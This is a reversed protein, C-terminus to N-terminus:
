SSRRANEQLWPIAKQVIRPNLSQGLHTVLEALTQSRLVDKWAAEARLMTVNIACPLRYAKAEIAAPGCQRIETCRFAHESGEVAELVDLLTIQDAPRALRFGGKPGPVSELLGARTLAQLHKQLYSESVGHYEALAKGPLTADSPLAALLTACHLSWEVGDSLKMYELYTIDQINDIRLLRLWRSRLM